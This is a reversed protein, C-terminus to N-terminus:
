RIPIDSYRAKYYDGFKKELESDTKADFLEYASNDTLAYLERYTIGTYGQQIVKQHIQAAYEQKTM